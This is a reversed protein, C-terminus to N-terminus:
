LYYSSHKERALMRSFLKVHMIEMIVRWLRTSYKNGHQLHSLQFKFSYTFNYLVVSWLLSLAWTSRAGRDISIYTMLSPSDSPIRFLLCAFCRVCLIWCEAAIPLVSPAISQSIFDSEFIELIHIQSFFYLTGRCRMNCLLRQHSIQGQVVWRRKWTLIQAYKCPLMSVTKIGAMPFLSLEEPHWWGSSTEFRDTTSLIRRIDETCVGLLHATGWGQSSQFAWLRRVIFLLCLSPVPPKLVSLAETGEQSCCVAAPNSRFHHRQAPLASQCM